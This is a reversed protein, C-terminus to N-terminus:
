NLYFFFFSWIFLLIIRIDCCMKCSWGSKCHCYVKKGDSLFNNLYDAGLDLDELSPPVFDRCVIQKHAIGLRKYEEKSITRHFLFYHEVLKYPLLLQMIFVALCRGVATNCDLEFDEVISLVVDVALDKTLMVKQSEM